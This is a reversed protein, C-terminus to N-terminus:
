YRESKKRWSLKTKRREQGVSLPLGCVEERETTWTAQRAISQAFLAGFQMRVCCQANYLSLLPFIQRDVLPVVGPQGAPDSM